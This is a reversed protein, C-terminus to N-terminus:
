SRRRCPGEGPVLGENPCRTEQMHGRDVVISPPNTISLSVYPSVPLPGRRAQRGGEGRMDSDGERRQRVRFQGKRGLRGVSKLRPCRRSSRCCYRSSGRTHNARRTSGTNAEGERRSSPAYIGGLGEICVSPFTLTVQHNLSCFNQMLLHSTKPSGPRHDCVSLSLLWGAFQQRASYQKIASCTQCGREM